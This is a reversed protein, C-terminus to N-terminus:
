DRRWMVIAGGHGDIAIGPDAGAILEVEGNRIVSLQATGAPVTIPVDLRTPGHNTLVVVGGDPGHLAGATVDPHPVAFSDAAGALEALGAYLGWSRDGPGHADAASALLSEVPFSCIVAHGTGKRHAVLAPAGSADVAVVHSGAAEIHIGRTELSGDGAPLVLDEGPRFPGWRSVFRLVANQGAPARDVIRCGAIDPLEPIAVDASCSVYLVGGRGFFADAGRWYSTRVHHLTNSTSALPAPLLVLPVHPWVHDLPERIFAVTIGARAAMVFGNLWARILPSVDRHRERTAEVPKYLGSPADLGFSAPDFPRAFEHPVVLAARAPTPGASALDEVPLHGVTQALEALVRGRPRLRGEHDTVGFQTEHPQRVYPARSYAAPEADTWCWAFFGTAGRGLSSWALLRDYAAIAEPHFQTSSAGYEHVMVPKGAGAALATEFAAAHTM